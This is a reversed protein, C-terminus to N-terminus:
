SSQQPSSKENDPKGMNQEFRQSLQTLTVGLASAIALISDFSPSLKGNEVRTLFTRDVGAELAIEEQTMRRATRIERLTNGLVEAAHANKKM